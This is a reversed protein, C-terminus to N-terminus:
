KPPNYEWHWPEQPYPYFGFRAANKVLWQYAPTARMKQVNKSSIGLGLWLDVARGSQHASHGPPAVWRRAEQPSGYKKVAQEWLKAQRKSSRYGSAPLLLPAKIGAARAETVLAQWAAAALRHLPIKRGGTGPVYVIDKSNPDRKDQIRGGGPNEVAIPVFETLEYEFLFEPQAAGTTSEWPQDTLGFKKVKGSGEVIALKRARVRDRWEPLSTDAVVNAILTLLERETPSRGLKQQMETRRQAILQVRKKCVNKKCTLWAPGSQTVIDFMLAFGRETRLGFQRAYKAATQMRRRVQSLQIQQFATDAELRRFYSAWPEVLKCFQRTRKQRPNCNPQNISVAFRMQEAMIRKKEAENKTRNLQRFQQLLQRLRDADTGFVTNFRQPHRQSFEWLLPQLSGSGINWQLLGFSVGMKDFNGTLGGFGLPRGTEFSSTIRLAKEEAPSFGPLKTQSTEWAEEALPFSFRDDEWLEWAAELEPHRDFEPYGDRDLPNLVESIVPVEFLWDAQTKM